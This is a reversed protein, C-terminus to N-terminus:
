CEWHGKFILIAPGKLYINQYILNNKEFTVSLM